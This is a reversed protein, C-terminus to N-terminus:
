GRTNLTTLVGLEGYLTVTSFHGPQIQFIMKKEPSLGLFICLLQRITGGHAIVLIRDETASFLKRAFNEVRKNFANLCEGDPFCFNEGSTQWDDVLDQDSSTIDEFNKGEWRGFDIERLNEDIEMSTDLHLLNMTELCRKMPSCYIQNIKEGALVKGTLIAQEKGSDALSVDTSGVYLGNLVTEGHRLLFLTKEQEQMLIGQFFYYSLLRQGSM